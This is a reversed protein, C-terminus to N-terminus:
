KRLRSTAYLDSGGVGEPRDSTFVLTFGDGSLAALSDNFPGNVVNGLHQPVSWSDSPSSRTSIWLDRLGVGAVDSPAPRNSDFIVELGDFRITPRFDNQPTSLEGVLTAPGYSGAATLESRYIDVGGVGPRSSAFFLTPIGLDDNEFYSPGFDGAPSNVGSGLHVPSQWGFDDRTHARWSVWIDFGGMGGPRTSAFFLLHGDRSLAPSRENFPGNIVAGLNEAPGWADGPGARRSVWLDEGGFLGPRNSAFYLSRGNKSLEPLFDEFASNVGTGLNAPASWDGFRGATKVLSTALIVVGALCAATELRPRWRHRAVTLVGQHDVASHWAMPQRPWDRRNGRDRAANLVCTEAELQLAM